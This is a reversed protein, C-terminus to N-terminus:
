VPLEKTTEIMKASLTLKSGSAWDAYNLSIFDTVFSDNTGARGSFLWTKFSMEKGVFELYRGGGEPTSTAVATKDDIFRFDITWGVYGHCEINFNRIV